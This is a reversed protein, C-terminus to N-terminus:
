SVARLVVRAVLVFHCAAALVVLAHFVEHYGFVGPRPDPRRAAYVAAGVSYLIGGGLALAVGEGRLLGAIRLLYPAGLWGVGVALLASVAKPARAWAISQAVGAAAGAWIVTLARRRDDGELGLQFLPTATGAILLFIASHDLRRLWQRRAPRWHPVHYLASVGLLAVLSVSYVAAAGRAEGAPARTILWAAAAAAVGAAYLHLRGRLRPKALPPATNLAASGPPVSQSGPHAVSM